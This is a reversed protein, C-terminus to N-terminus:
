TSAEASAALMEVGPVQLIEKAARRVVEDTRALSAGPPLQLVTILYGQDQEPIFGTPARAFQWGTLGLLGVHVALVVATLLVLRATMQGHFSALREFGQNFGNFFAVLPRALAVSAAVASAAITALTLRRRTTTTGRRDYLAPRAVPLAARTWEVM